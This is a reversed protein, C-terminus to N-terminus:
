LSPVPPQRDHLGRQMRWLRERERDGHRFASDLMGLACWVSLPAMVLALLGASAKLLVGGVYRTVTIALTLTLTLILALTLTLTLTLSLL